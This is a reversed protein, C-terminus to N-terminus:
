GQAVLRDGLRREIAETARSGLADLAKPLADDEPVSRAPDAQAVSAESLITVYSAAVAAVSLLM